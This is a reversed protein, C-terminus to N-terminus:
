YQSKSHNTGWSVLSSTLTEYAEINWVSGEVGGYLLMKDSRNFGVGPSKEESVIVQEHKLKCSM